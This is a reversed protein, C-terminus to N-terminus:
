SVPKRFELIEAMLIQHTGLPYTQHMGPNPFGPNPFREFCSGHSVSKLVCNRQVGLNRGNFNPPYWSSINSSDWTQSGHILFVNLVPGVLNVCIEFRLTESSWIEAMLIQHIGLPYAQHIVPKPVM